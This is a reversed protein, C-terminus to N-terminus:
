APFSRNRRIFCRGGAQGRPADCRRGRLGNLRRFSPRRHCDRGLRDTGCPLAVTPGPLHTFQGAAAGAARRISFPRVLRHLAPSPPSNRSSARGRWGPYRPLPSAACASALYDDVRYAFGPRDADNWGRRIAASRDPIPLFRARDEYSKIRLSASPRVGELQSPRVEIRQVCNVVLSNPSMPRDSRTM